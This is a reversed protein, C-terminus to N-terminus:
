SEKSDLNFNHPNKPIGKEKVEVGYFMRRLKSMENELKDQADKVRDMQALISAENIEIEAPVCIMM